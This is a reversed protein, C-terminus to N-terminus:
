FLGRITGNKNIKIQEAAPRKPLGPMTLIKGTIPVILGAGASLRIEKILVTFGTPVNLLKPDDSLSNQTKAMCIPLNSYDLQIIKKLDEQAKLTYEVAGAGYIEKCIISIKETVPLSLNYLYKFTNPKDTISVVKKALEVCGLGGKEFGESLAIEYNNKHAWNLVFDIEEQSDSFFKNLAILPTIGFKKINELHKQLNAMGNSLANVNPITLEEKLLGGHMKLARITAVLVVASPTLGGVRCKIDLFKEAGLDAGFGAETVVYDALKLALRTAIISNCGHAINAFPGGHILVPNNELTQVLNPNIAEKLLVAVAHEIKLQKVTVPKGKLNYAVIINAVRNRLDKLDNSLCLIAMIESAVTIDYHSSREVGNISSGQGITVDRLVRDNMDVARNFVVKKIDINLENGQYISNDLVAAILNVASSIAHMDGTFHLNIDEMPTVQSFGGGTAGGKLGFVPGMSPERLCILTKKKLVNLADGLGITVTTKGEGAPTPTIATVLILKGKAENLKKEIDLNVKAKYLGYQILYHENIEIKKAIKGIKEKKAQQSIEIDTLM